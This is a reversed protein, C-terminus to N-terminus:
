RQAKEPDTGLSPAPESIPESPKNPPKPKSFVLCYTGHEGGDMTVVFFLEEDQPFRRRIIEGDATRALAGIVRADDSALYAGVVAEPIEEGVTEEYRWGEAEWKSIEHTKSQKEPMAGNGASPESRTCSTVVVAASFALTAVVGLILRTKM